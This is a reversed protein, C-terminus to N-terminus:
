WGFSYEDEYEGETIVLKTPYGKDNLPWTFESAYGEEDVCKVPLNKTAKGLLGAYYAYEMEDMDVGLTQDFLMICGKNEIAKSVKDSTYSITYEYNDDDDESVTSTKTVNGDKYTITTTENGGESRKMSTLNGEATYTFDWTEADGDPEIEDCHKVFGQENLEMNFVYIEDKYEQDAVTMKVYHEQNVARTVGHYEFTVKADASKIETLLGDANYTMDMGSFSKAREGTFVNSPNVTGNGNNDDKDDDSSCSAFGVCLVVMMLTTAFMRLTKM